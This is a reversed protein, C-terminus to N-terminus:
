RKGRITKKPNAMAAVMCDDADRALVSAIRINGAAKAAM